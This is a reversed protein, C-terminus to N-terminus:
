WLCVGKEINLEHIGSVPEEKEIERLRQLAYSCRSQAANLDYICASILEPDTVAAFAARSRRLDERARDYEEMLRKRQRDKAEEPTTSMKQHLFVM